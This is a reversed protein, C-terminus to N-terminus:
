FQGTVRERELILKRKSDREREGLCSDQSRPGRWPSKLEGGHFAQNRTSIQDEEGHYPDEGDGKRNGEDKARGTLSVKMVPRRNKHEQYPNTHPLRRRL